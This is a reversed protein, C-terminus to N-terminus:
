WQETLIMERRCNPCLLHLHGGRRHPTAAATKYQAMLLTPNAYALHGVKEALFKLHDLPGLIEGCHECLVLEKISQTFAKKRDTTALNFEKNLIIGKETICARECQQCFICVDQHHTLTRKRSNKDDVYEIARAPCVEFCALCGVCEDQHFEPKGRFGDPVTVPAFPFKGTYSASFLSRIAEGLERIKPLKM